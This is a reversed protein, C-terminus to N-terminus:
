STEITEPLQKFNEEVEWAGAWYRVQCKLGKRQGEQAIRHELARFRRCLVMDQSPSLFLFRIVPEGSQLIAIHRYRRLRLVPCFDNSGDGVYIIRDYDVSHRKLFADLENGGSIHRTLSVCV